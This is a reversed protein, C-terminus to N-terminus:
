SGATGWTVSIPWVERTTGFSCLKLGTLISKHFSMIVLDQFDLQKLLSSDSHPLPCVLFLLLASDKYYAQNCPQICSTPRQEVWCVQRWKCLWVWVCVALSLTPERVMCKIGTWRRDVGDGQRHVWLQDWLVPSSPLPIVWLQIWLQTRPRFRSNQSVISIHM